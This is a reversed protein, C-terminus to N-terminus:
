TLCLGGFTLKEHNNRDVIKINPLVTLDNKSVHHFTNASFFFFVLEKSPIASKQLSFSMLTSLKKVDQIVSFDNPVFNQAKKKSEM